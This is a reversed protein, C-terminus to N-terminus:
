GKESEENARQITEARNGTKEHSQPRSVQRSKIKPIKPAADILPGPPSIFRNKPEEATEMQPLLAWADAETRPPARHRAELKWV